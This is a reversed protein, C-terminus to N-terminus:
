QAGNQSVTSGQLYIGGIYQQLKFSLKLRFFMPVGTRLERDFLGSVTPDSFSERLNSKFSTCIHNSPSM